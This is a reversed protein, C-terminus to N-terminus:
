QTETCPILFYGAIIIQQKIKGKQLLYQFKIVSM